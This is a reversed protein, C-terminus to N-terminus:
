NKPISCGVAKTRNVRIPKAALAADLANRLDFETAAYRKQGIQVYLNDIRGLYQVEGTPAILAVEPTISAELESALSHTPDLLMPFPLKYDAVFKASAAADKAPDSQVAYFKVGLKSYKEYIRRIEPVYGNSIPCDIALFFLVLGRLNEFDASPHEKGSTDLYTVVDSPIPAPRPQEQGAACCAAAIVLALLRLM